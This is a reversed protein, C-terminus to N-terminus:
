CPSFEQALFEECQYFCQKTNPPHIFKQVQTDIFTSVKHSQGNGDHSGNVSITEGDVNKSSFFFPIKLIKVGRFHERKLMAKNLSSKSSM